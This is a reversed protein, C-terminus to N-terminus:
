AFFKKLTEKKIHSGILVVRSEAIPGAFPMIGTHGYSLDFRYPGQDTQVLAKARVVSGFTGEAVDQFFRNFSDFSRTDPIFLSFTDFSFFSGDKAIIREKEFVHLMPRDIASHVTRFLLAEPNMQEIITITKEIMHMEALDIKNILIIDSNRIQDEVYPGYMRSEYLHPFESSDVIGVVTEGKIHMARLTDLVGSPSAIGSPEIILHDPRFDDQIKKITSILDDKLTCCICGSPLEVSEIGESSLVEGDIGADGFDNVLVVTKGKCHKMNHHIFTTKGAGLLGSVITIDM